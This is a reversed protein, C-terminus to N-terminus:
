VVGVQAAYPVMQDFFGFCRSVATWDRLLEVRLVGEVFCAMVHFAWPGLSGLGRANELDSM